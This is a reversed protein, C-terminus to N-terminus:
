VVGGVLKSEVEICSDELEKKRQRVSVLRENISGINLSIHADLRPKKLGLRQDMVYAAAAMRVSDKDADTLLTKLTRLAVDELAAFEGELRSEHKQIEARMEDDFQLVALVAQVDYGLAQAIEDPSLGQKYAELIQINNCTM